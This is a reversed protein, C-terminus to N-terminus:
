LGRLYCPMTELARRFGSKLRSEGVIASLPVIRLRIGFLLCGSVPLAAFIQDEIRLWVNALDIPALLRPRELSPHMNLEPTAALGWNAREYPSGPKLRGLFQGITAKLAPNLGPVQGHIDDVSRGMKDSLAWSSPFCVAGARLVFQADTERTLLMFDPELACGLIRVREVLERRPMGAEHIFGWEAAIAELEATAAGSAEEARAFRQSGDTFWRRREARVKSNTAAFFEVLNGKRLTLHFRYDEDPFLERAFAANDYFGPNSQPPGTM